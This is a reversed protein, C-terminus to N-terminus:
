LLYIVALLGAATMTVLYPFAMVVMRM